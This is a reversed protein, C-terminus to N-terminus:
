GKEGGNELNGTSVFEKKTELTISGETEWCVNSDM